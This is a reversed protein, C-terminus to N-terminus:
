SKKYTTTWHKAVTVGSQVWAAHTSTWTDKKLSVSPRWQSSTTSDRWGRLLVHRLDSESFGTLLTAIQAKNVNVENTSENQKVDV